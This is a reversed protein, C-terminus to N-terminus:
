FKFLLVLAAVVVGFVAIGEGLAVLVISRALLEPREAAAGLAAAGVKGVAYGAALCPLGVSLGVAIGIDWRVPSQKQVVITGGSGTEQGCAARAGVGCLLALGLVAAAALASWGKKRM